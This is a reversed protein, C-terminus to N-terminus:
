TGSATSNRFFTRCANANTHRTICTQSSFAGRRKCVLQLCHRQTRQAAPICIDSLMRRSRSVSKVLEFSTILCAPDRSDEVVRLLTTFSRELGLIIKM